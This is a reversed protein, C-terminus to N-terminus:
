RAAAPVQADPRRLYLPRAPLLVGGRLADATAGSDTGHADLEADRDLVPEGSALAAAALRAVWEARPQLTSVSGDVSGFAETYAVAGSGVWRGTRLGSDIGTAPGVRPGAVRTGAGDYAAWYVERRRADLAVGVPGPWRERACAAVADLACVGVVPVDWCAGLALAAAIGVRLGTYPGPGVGCAIAVLTGPDVRPRVTELMPGIEEVHGRPTDRALDALVEGGDVLAVSTMAGSTDIALVTM